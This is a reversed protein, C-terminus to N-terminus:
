LPKSVLEIEHDLVDDEALLRRLRFDRDAIM